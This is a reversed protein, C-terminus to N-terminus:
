AGGFMFGVQTRIEQVLQTESMGPAAQVNINWEHKVGQSLQTMDIGLRNGAESWIQRNRDRQDPKGSIYAEWGTEPEAFKHIPAGGKYIGTAFGGDAYAEIFGDAGASTPMKGPGYPNELGITNAQVNVWWTTPLSSKFEEVKGTAEATEVIVKTESEDPIDYIADALKVAEDRNGTLAEIQLILAERGESLRQQYNTAADAAGLTAVEQEMTAYASKQSDAALDALMARNDAGEVTNADLSRSYGEVGAQANAVYEAVEALTRQYQANTTEATQATSNSENLAEILGYLEDAAAKAADAQEMFSSASSVAADGADSASPGVTNLARDLISMDDTATGAAEAAELLQIKFQPMTENLLTIGQSQDLGAKRYFDNFAAQASPLDTAALRSLEVGAEKLSDILAKDDFDQFLAKTFSNAHSVSSDLVDGLNEISSTVDYIGAIKLGKGAETRLVEMVSKGQKLGIEFDESSAKAEDMASKIGRIALGGALMAVGWPGTLFRALGTVGRHVRGGSLELSVLAVKFAAIKPVAAMAVGGTLLIGAAILGSWMVVAGMPGDLGALLDAFSGIGDAVAEVAPLLHAGLSIAADVVKNRMMGLKAETTEYRKEAEATLATNESLAKNGMNMADSFQDAASASRLLADRMRVETIGLDALIGLTSKGQSEANALGAVFVALAEGPDKRWKDAFDTASIGAVEAFEDLRGAGEEVSSAIDIMVKSMASGGAEAEIGVSSLATSLGLVQGESMGIQKGAGSLRMSMALIEAETTAYNNGLAVLASGLRDVDGQATGMVNMFRALQTAAEEAGLNTTEGLDIMTKTFAAVNEREIGLQGAAEAVAAIEDHAAPLVGTLDRLQQQLAAMEEPSGDVTKTVGAWATDWGIAANTALVLGAAIAGGGIMAARGMTEFAQGKQALKEAETGTERTARGAKEMEAIYGQAQATLTVKVSRDAM